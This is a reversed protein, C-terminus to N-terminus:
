LGNIKFVFGEDKNIFLNWIVVTLLGDCGVEGFGGDQFDAIERTM